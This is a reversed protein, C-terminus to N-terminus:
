NVNESREYESIISAVCHSSLYSKKGLSIRPLTYESILSEIQSNFGRHDGLMFSNQTTSLNTKITSIDAGEEDLVWLVSEPPKSYKKIVDELSGDSTQAYDPPQDKLSNRIVTAWEVESQPADDGPFTFTLIRSDAIIMVLEIREKPWTKPGWVFCAALDRCVIDIRKGSSPLDKLLFDGDPLAEPLLQVFRLITSGPQM